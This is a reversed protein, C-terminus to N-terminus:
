KKKKNQLLIKQILIKMLIKKIKENLSIQENEQNIELNIIEGINNTNL